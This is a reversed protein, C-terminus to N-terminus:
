SMESLPKIYQYDHEIFAYNFNPYKCSLESLYNFDVDNKIGSWYYNEVIAFHHIDLDFKEMVAEYYALRLKLFEYEDSFKTFFYITRHM